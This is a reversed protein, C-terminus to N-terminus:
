GKSRNNATGRTLIVDGEQYSNASRIQAPTFKRDILVTRPGAATNSTAASSWSSASLPM